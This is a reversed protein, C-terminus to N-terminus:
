TTIWVEVFINDGMARGTFPLAGTVKRHSIKMSEIVANGTFTLGTAVTLVCAVPNGAKLDMVGTGPGGPTGTPDTFGPNGGSQGFIGPDTTTQDTNGNANIVPGSALFGAWDITASAIGSGHHREAFTANNYSTCADVQQRNELDWSAIDGGVGAVAISGSGGGLNQHTTSM